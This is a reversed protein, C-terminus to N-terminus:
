SSVSKRADQPLKQGPEDPLSEGTIMSEDVSSSGDIIIGDVPIKEGPKVLILDGAQVEDILVEVEKGQKIVTATKPSLGILKKIADSTKGKARAELLKGLLVLTILIASIEFYQGSQPSFFLAYVSYFYAASTGVAILTDMNSTKNKLAVWAGKYFQWGAFFQVPTALLWLLYEKYPVMINLWMFVMAIIFSPIAFALSFIFLRKIRRIEKEQMKEQKELDAKGRSIEAGYGKKKVIAVLEKESIKKEDFLVTGKGTSYNVNAEKVGEAKSLARNILTSCSACHMGTIALDIIKM